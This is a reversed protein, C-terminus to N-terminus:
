TNHMYTHVIRMRQYVHIRLHAPLCTYSVHTRWGGPFTQNEARYETYPQPLWANETTPLM